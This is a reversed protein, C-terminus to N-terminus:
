EIVGVKTMKRQIVSARKPDMISLYYPVISQRGEEEATRDIQILIDIVLLDDLGALREVAAKPPMSIFYVAQKEINEKYNDYELIRESLVKKEEELRKTEELLKAETENLELEKQELAKIQGDIEEQRALLVEERKNFVERELLFPDDDAAEGRQMFQPLYQSLPGIIREYNILGLHDFWYMGGMIIAILLLLLFFVKLVTRATTAASV